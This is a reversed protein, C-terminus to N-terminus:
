AVKAGFNNLALQHLGDIITVSAELSANETSLCYGYPLEVSVTYDCEDSVEVEYYGNIGTTGSYVTEGASNKITVKADSLHDRIREDM